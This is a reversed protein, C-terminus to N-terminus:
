QNQQETLKKDVTSGTSDTSFYVSTETNIEKQGTEAKPGFLKSMASGAKKTLSEGQSSNKGIVGGVAAGAAATVGALVGVEAVGAGVILIPAAAAGAAAGLGLGAALGVGLAVKAGTSMAVTENRRKYKAGALELVTRWSDLESQNSAQCFWVQGNNSHSQSQITYVYDNYENVLSSKLEIKCKFHEGYRTLIGDDLVTWFPKYGTKSWIRVWRHYTDNKDIKPPPPPQVRTVNLFTESQILDTGLVSGAVATNIERETVELYNQGKFYWGRQNYCGKIDDSYKVYVTFHVAGVDYGWEESPGLEVSYLASVQWLEFIINRNSRNTVSINGM